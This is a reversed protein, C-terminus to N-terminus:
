VIKFDFIEDLFLLTKGCGVSDYKSFIKKMDRYTEASIESVSFSNKYSNFNAFDVEENTGVSFEISKKLANDYEKQTVSILQGNEIADMMAEDDYWKDYLQHCVYSRKLMDDFTERDVDLAVFGEFDIEDAWNFNQKVVIAM